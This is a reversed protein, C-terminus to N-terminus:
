KIPLDDTPESRNQTHRLVGTSWLAWAILAPQFFLRVFRKQDTDLGFANRREMYQSINGPFVCAFFAGAIHGLLAKQRPLGLLATGLAIEVVGSQLVVTDPDLPVWSPVQARFAHRAFTLHSAGATTFMLGLAIRAGDQLNSTDRRSTHSKPPM